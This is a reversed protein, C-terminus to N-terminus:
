RLLLYVEFLGQGTNDVVRLKQVSIGKEELAYILYPLKEGPLNTGQVEYGAETQKFSKFEGQYQSFLGRVLQETPEERKRGQYNALLFMIEKHKLYDKYYSDRLRYYRDLLLSGLLAYLLVFFLIAYRKELRM